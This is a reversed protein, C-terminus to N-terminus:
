EPKQIRGTMVKSPKFSVVTRASIVIDEGNQPNRGKRAAKHKTSLTGFGSLKVTEGSALTNKITAFVQEVADMASRKTMGDVSNVLANALDDKTM